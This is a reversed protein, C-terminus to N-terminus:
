LIILKTGNKIETDKVYLNNEYEKGTEHDVFQVEELSVNFNNESMENIIPILYKKITGIKKNIPIYADFNVGVTPVSFNLLLKNM